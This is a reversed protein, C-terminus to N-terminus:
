RSSCRARMARAPRPMAMVVLNIPSAARWREPPPARWWSVAWRIPGPRSLTWKWSIASRPMAPPHVIAAVTIQRAMAWCHRGKREVLVACRKGVSAKNFALSDRQLAAILRQLRDDMVEAAIQGEMTAAADPRASYKFSFAQAYRAEAIIQLTEEFEPRPGPFGVIFDGSLAIDPRAARV